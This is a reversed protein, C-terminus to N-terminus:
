QGSMEVKRTKTIKDLTIRYTRGHQIYDGIRGANFTVRYLSSVSRQQAVDELLSGDVDLLM